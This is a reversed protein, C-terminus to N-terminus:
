LGLCPAKPGQCLEEGDSWAGRAMVEPKDWIFNQSKANRSNESGKIEFIGISSGAFHGMLDVTPDVKFGIAVIMEEFPRLQEGSL